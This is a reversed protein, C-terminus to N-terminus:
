LFRQIDRLSEIRHSYGRQAEGESRVIFVPVMGAGRAGVVDNEFHDGVYMTESAMLSADKLAYDFIKPSPKAYGAKSSFLIQRFYQAIGLRGCITPLRSDFNSIIGLYYRQMALSELVERTEPFLRWAEGYEFFQYLEKFFLDFSPFSVDAFVTRVIRFWWRYEWEKRESDTVNPFALPGSKRFAAKFGADLDHPDCVVGYRAAFRSYTVGIAEHTEFLTDGADFFIGKVPESLM